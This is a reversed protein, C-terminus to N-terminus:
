NFIYRIGIQAQWVNDLNVSKVFADRLLEVSGDISQTALRYSPVGEASISAVSLPNATTTQNGVGWANNLLNGFNLFDARVQIVNKKQNPGVKLHLEQMVTFDFRTLWPFVAGNREAYQGRRNKLYPNADIYKDFATAQEEPSFTKGGATLSAFTLDAARLPVFILDNNQADGNLDNAGGTPFTYSFNGGSNSVCGLTFETGGGFRGGYNIRYNVYGVIRHRLDNDSWSTTLYNQGAVTPINALVTSAVSQLDYAAGYTYGLMGGFGKTNPLEVKGTFSYSYGEKTNALVFANSIKPNIFRAAAVQASPLGSAPYRDRNDPGAFTRDPGKLNADIYRLAQINKNYIAEITGILGFPLKQDIAINSKWIVPYKLDDVSANIVYPPLAEIDTNAPRFRGPDLSFPYATTNTVNIIATNVGNNGLQNSVL